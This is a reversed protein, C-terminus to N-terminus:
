DVEEEEEEEDDDDDNDDNDDNDRDDHRQSQQQEGLWRHIIRKEVQSFIVGELQSSTQASAVGLSLSVTLGLGFFLTALFIRM